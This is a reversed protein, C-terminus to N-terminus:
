NTMSNAVTDFVFADREGEIAKRLKMLYFKARFLEESSRAFM